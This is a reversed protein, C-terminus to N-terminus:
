AVKSVEGGQEEVAKILAAVLGSPGKMAAALESGPSTAIKGLTAGPGLMAGVLKAIAEERTPYESLTKVGDAEFIAGDLVAGRFQLYKREKQQAILERAVNVVSEDGYCIACPGDLIQRIPEFTSDETARELLTNKVVTMRINKQALAERLGNNQGSKIGRIDLVVVGDIDELRSKYTDVIMNKVPKSM